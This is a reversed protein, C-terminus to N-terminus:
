NRLSILNVLAAKITEADLTRNVDTGTIISWRGIVPIKWGSDILQRFIVKRSTLYRKAENPKNSYFNYRDLDSDGTNVKKDFLVKSNIAHGFIRLGSTSRIYCKLELYNPPQGEPRSYTLAFKHGAFQGILKPSDDIFFIWSKSLSGSFHPTLAELKRYYPKIQLQNRRVFFLNIVVLALMIAVIAFPQLHNNIIFKMM